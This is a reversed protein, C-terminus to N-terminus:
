SRRGRSCVEIYLKTCLVLVRFRSVRILTFGLGVMGGGVFAVLSLAVTWRAALLLNRLIDWLSFETM